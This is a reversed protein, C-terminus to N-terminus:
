KEILYRPIGEACHGRISDQLHLRIHNTIQRRSRIADGGHDDFRCGSFSARGTPPGDLRTPRVQLFSGEIQGIDVAPNISDGIDLVLHCKLVQHDGTLCDVEVQAAAAGSVYYCPNHEKVDQFDLRFRPHSTLDRLLAIAKYPGVQLTRSRGLPVSRLFRGSDMAGMNGQSQRGYVSGLTSPDRQLGDTTPPSAISPPTSYPGAYRFRVVTSMREM